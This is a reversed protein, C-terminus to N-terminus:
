KRAKEIEGTNKRQEPVIWRLGLAAYVDEETKGAIKKGKTGEQTLQFVGYENITMGKERALTRLTVNHEKSGTFYQLAAGWEDAKVVRLDVQQDGKLIVSGKTGGEALVQKVDPHRVFYEILKVPHKSIALFDLDGITAEQRRFSGAAELKQTLKSAKLFTMMQNAIPIMDVLPKRRKLAVEVALGKRINEVSKSGFGPLAEVSGNDLAKLLSKRDIVGLEKWLMQVKKPGLSPVDMLALLTAPFRAKVDEYAKIKGTTLYEHIMESIAPGVGELNRLRGERDIEAIDRALSEITQSVRRFSVIRYRDEEKGALLYLDALHNFLAALEKNNTM